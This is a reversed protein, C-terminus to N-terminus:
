IQKAYTDDRRALETDFLFLVDRTFSSCSSQAAECTRLILLLFPHTASAITARTCAAQSAGGFGPFASLISLSGLCVPSEPCTGIKVESAAGLTGLSSMPM